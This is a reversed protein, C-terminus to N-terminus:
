DIPDRVTPDGDEHDTALQRFEDAEAVADIDHALAPHNRLQLRSLVQGLFPHHGAHDLRGPYSRFALIHPLSQDSRRSAVEFGETPTRVWKNRRGCARTGGDFYGRDRPSVSTRWRCSVSADEDLRRSFM